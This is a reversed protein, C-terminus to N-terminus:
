PPSPSTASFHRRSSTSCCSTAGIRSRRANNARSSANTRVTTRSPVCRASATVCSVSWRTRPANASVDDDRYAPVLERYGPPFAALRHGRGSGRARRATTHAPPCDLELSIWSAPTGAQPAHGFVENGRVCLEDLACTESVGRREVGEHAPVHARDVRNRQRDHRIVLICLVNTLIHEYTDDLPEVLTPRWRSERTPQEGDHATSRLVSTAPLSSPLAIGQLAGIRRAGLIGRAVRLPRLKTRTDAHREGPETASLAIDHEQVVELAPPMPRNPLGKADGLHVGALVQEHRALLKSRLEGIKMLHSLTIIVSSGISRAEIIGASSPRTPRM